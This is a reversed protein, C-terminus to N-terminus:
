GRKSWGKAQECDSFHSLAWRQGAREQTTAVSLPMPRGAATRVWVIAAGCSRCTALDAAAPILYEGRRPAPAPTDNTTM